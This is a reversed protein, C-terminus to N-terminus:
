HKISRYKILELLKNKIELAKIYSNPNNINFNNPCLFLLEEQQKQTINKKENDSFDRWGNIDMLSRLEIDIVMKNFDLDM